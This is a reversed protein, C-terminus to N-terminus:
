RRRRRAALASLFLMALTSTSPEPVTTTDGFYITDATHLASQLSWTGASLTVSEVSSLAAGGLKLAILDRDVPESLLDNASLTFDVDNLTLGGTVLSSLDFMYFTGGTSMESASATQTLTISVDSMSLTGLSLSFSTGTEVTAHSLALDTDSTVSFGSLSTEGRSTGTIELCNVSVKELSFCGTNGILSMTKGTDNTFVARGGETSASATNDADRGLIVVGETSDLTTNEFTAANESDSALYLTGKNIVSAQKTNNGSFTVSQNWVFSATAGADNYLNAGETANNDTFSVAHNGSIHLKGDNYIAGGRATNGSVSNGSFEVNGTNDSITLDAGKGISVAGGTTAQQARLGTSEASNGKFVIDGANGSLAVHAGHPADEGDRLLSALYLAGGQASDGLASNGTFSVSGKNEKMSVSSEAGVYAAGGQALGTYLWSYSQAKNNEFVVSVGSTNARNSCLNVISGIVGYTGKDISAADLAGGRAYTGDNVYETNTSNYNSSVINGRFSVSANNNIDLEDPEYVSTGNTYYSVANIYVTSVAGGAARAGGIYRGKNGDWTAYTGTNTLSLTNNAFTVAGNDNLQSFMAALGGGSAECGNSSLTNGSVSVSKNGNIVANYVAYAGGGNVYYGKISNDSISINGSNRISFSDESALGGGGDRMAPHSYASSVTAHNGSITVDGVDQMEAYAVAYLGKATGNLDSANLGAGSHSARCNKISINGAQEDGSGHAYFHGHAQVGGGTANEGGELNLGGYLLVTAGEEITLLAQTTNDNSISLTTNQATNFFVTKLTDGEEYYTGGITVPASLSVSRNLTCNDSVINGIESVTQRPTATQAVPTNTDGSLTEPTEIFTVDHVWYSGTSYWSQFRDTELRFGNEGEDAVSVIFTGYKRDDSDSLILSTIAGQDDTEYGWCTIAHSGLYNEYAINLNVAQGAKAFARDLLTKTQSLTPRKGTDTFSSYFSAGKLNESDHYIPGTSGFINTYYGGTGSQQLSSSGAVDPTSLYVYGQLWWTYVNYTYGSGPSWCNALEKYVNLSCSGEPRSYGSGVGNPANTNFSRYTDQWYQIVNSAAAAWCMSGDQIYGESSNDPRTSDQSYSFKGNDYFNGSVTVLDASAAAPLLLSLLYLLARQRFKM